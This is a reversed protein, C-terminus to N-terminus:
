FRRTTPIPSSRWAPVRQCSSPRDMSLHPAVAVILINRLEPPMIPRWRGPCLCHFRDTNGGILGDAVYSALPYGDVSAQIRIPRVIQGRAVVIENIVQDTHLLQKGRWHEVKLMM